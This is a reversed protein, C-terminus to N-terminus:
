RSEKAFNPSSVRVTITALICGVAFHLLLSLQLSMTSRPEINGDIVRAVSLGSIVVMVAAVALLALAIKIDSGARPNNSKPAVAYPNGPTM